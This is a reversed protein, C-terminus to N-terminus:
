FGPLGLLELARSAKRTAEAQDLASSAAGYLMTLILVLDAITWSADVRGEAQASALPDALIAELRQNGLDDPIEHRAVVVMEIFATSEITLALLRQWLRGFPDGDAGAALNELEQFNEEFVAYALDLRTPFHRYLVGQGVGARRAIASLPVQFGQEALLERASTLIAERNAAAAAPGRNSARVTRPM